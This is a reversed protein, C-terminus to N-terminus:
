IVRAKLSFWILSLPIVKESLKASLLKYMFKDLDKVDWWEDMYSEGLALSGGALVRSYLKENHVQIDWSRKGNIKVDALDLLQQVKEKTSAM